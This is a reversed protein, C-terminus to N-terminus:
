EVGALVQLYQQYAKNNLIGIGNLLLVRDIDHEAVFDPLYLAPKESLNFYRPDVVYLEEFHGALFPLLANTFSDKVILVSGGSKAYSDIYLLPLDGGQFAQYLNGEGYDHYFLRCDAGETMEASRYSVCPCDMSSDFWYELTDPNKELAEAQPYASVLTYFSGLFSGPLTDSAFSDMSRAEMGLAEMLACYGYYAGRQTWHHDSRFYIYEEQRQQLASYADATTVGEPLLGYAAAIIQQQDRPGERYEAPAYFAGSNPILMATIPIDGLLERYRQVNEGYLGIIADNKWGTYMARGGAMIVDGATLDLEPAAPQPAESPAPADTEGVGPSSQPAAPATPAPSEVAAVQDQGFPLVLSVDEGSGGGPSFVYFRNLQRELKLLKERLPFTDTYYTDLDASWSGDVLGSRSPRPFTALRRNETVSVTADRDLASVAGFLFLPLLFLISVLICAKKM